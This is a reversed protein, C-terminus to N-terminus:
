FFAGLEFKYEPDFLGLELDRCSNGAAPWTEPNSNLERFNGFVIDCSEFIVEFTHSPNRHLVPNRRAIM